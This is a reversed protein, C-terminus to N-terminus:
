SRTRSWEDPHDGRREDDGDEFDERWANRGSERGLISRAIEIGRDLGSPAGPREPLLLWLIAYLAVGSLQFLALLLFAARVATVSVGLHHAVASCVGALKRDPWGRHWDSFSGPALSRTDRGPAAVPSKCYRCKIAELAIMEACWPCQKESM